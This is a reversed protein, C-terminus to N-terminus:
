IYFYQMHKSKIVIIGPLAYEALLLLCKPLVFYFVLGVQHRISATKIDLLTDIVESQLVATLHVMHLHSFFMM